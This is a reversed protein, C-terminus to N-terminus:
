FLKAWEPTAAKSTFTKQKGEAMRNKFALPSPSLRVLFCFRLKLADFARLVYIFPREVWKIKIETQGKTTRHHSQEHNV